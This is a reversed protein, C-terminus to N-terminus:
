ASLLSFNKMKTRLQKRTIGLLKAAQSQNWSTKDLAKMIIRKEMEMLNLDENRVLEDYDKERLKRPLCEINIQDYPCLIVAREILNELERVNGSWDYNTLIDMVQSDKKIHCPWARHWTNKYHFLGENSLWLIVFVFKNLLIM